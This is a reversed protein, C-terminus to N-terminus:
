PRCKKLESSLYKKSIKTYISYSANYGNYITPGGKVVKTRGVESGSKDIIRIYAKYPQKFSIVKYAGDTLMQVTYNASSSDNTVKYGEYKIKSIIHERSRDDKGEVYFIQGKSLAPVLLFAFIFKKM